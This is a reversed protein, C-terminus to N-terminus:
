ASRGGKATSAANLSVRHKYILRFIREETAHLHTEVAAAAADADRARLARCIAEHEVCTQRQDMEQFVQYFRGLEIHVNLSRYATLLFPNAAATIILEHFEKDLQNFRRYGHSWSGVETQASEEIIHQLIQEVTMLDPLIIHKAALRAADIEILRRVHVLDTVEELTLLPSVRYGKFAEFTVLREASLRALAERIPTPSVALEVALADINLRQGPPYAQDMIREKLQEYVAAALVTKQETLSM